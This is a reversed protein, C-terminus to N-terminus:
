QPLVKNHGFSAHIRQFSFKMSSRFILKKKRTHRQGHVFNSAFLPGQERVKSINTFKIEEKIVFEHSRKKISAFCKLCVSGGPHHDPTSIFALLGVMGLIEFQPMALKAFFYFGLSHVHTSTYICILPLYIFLSM